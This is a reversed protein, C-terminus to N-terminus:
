ERSVLRESTSYRNSTSGFYSCNRSRASEELWSNIALTEVSETGNHPVDNLDNWILPNFARVVGDSFENESPWCSKIALDIRRKEDMHGDSRNREGTLESNIWNIVSLVDLPSVIGDGDVDVRDTDKNVSSQDLFQIGADNLYNIVTLVDLPGVHGDVDVDASKEFNQFHSVVRVEITAPLSVHGKRDIVVYQITNLGVFDIAPTFRILNDIIEWESHVPTSVFQITAGDMGYTGAVDNELPNIMCTQRPWMVCWDDIAQPAVDPPVVFFTVRFVESAGSNSITRIDLDFQYKISRDFSIRNILRDGMIDFNANDNEGEVLEYRYVSPQHAMTSLLAFPTNLQTNEPVAVSDVLIGLPISEDIEKLDEWRLMFMEEGLMPTWAPGVLGISLAKPGRSDTTAFLNMAPITRVSDTLTDIRQFIPTRSHFGTAEIILVSDTEFFRSRRGWNVCSWSYDALRVMSNSEPNWRMLSSHGLLENTQLVYLRDDFIALDVIVGSLEVVIEVNLFRDKTRYVINNSTFYIWDDEIVFRDITYPPNDALKVTGNITGDTQWLSNSSVYEGEVTWVGEWFRFIVTNGFQIPSSM